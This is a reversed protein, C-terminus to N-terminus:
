VTERLINLNFGLFNFGPEQDHENLIHSIRTKEQSLESRIQALWEEIIGRCIRIVNLDEHIILFNDAYRILSLSNKNLNKSGKLTAAYEKIRTEM